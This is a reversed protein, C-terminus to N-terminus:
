GSILKNLNYLAKNIFFEKDQNVFWFSVIIYFVMPVYNSNYRAECIEIESRCPDYYKNLNDEFKIQNILIYNKYTDNNKIIFLIHHIM